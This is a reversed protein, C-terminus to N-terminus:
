RICVTAYIYSKNDSHFVIDPHVNVISKVNIQKQVHLVISMQYRM